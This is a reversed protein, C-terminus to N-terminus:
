LSEASKFYEKSLAYRLDINLAYWAPHGIVLVTRMVMVTGASVTSSISMTDPAMPTVREASMDLRSVSSAENRRMHM